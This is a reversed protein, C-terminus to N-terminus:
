VIMLREAEERLRSEIDPKRARRTAELLNSYMEGDQRFALLWAGVKEAVAEDDIRLLVEYVLLVERALRLIGDRQEEDLLMERKIDYRAALAVLDHAMAELRPRADAGQPLGRLLAHRQFL